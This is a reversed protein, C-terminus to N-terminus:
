ACQIIDAHWRTFPAAPIVHPAVELARILKWAPGLPLADQNIVHAGADSTHKVQTGAISAQKGQQGALARTQAPDTEIDRLHHEIGRSGPKGALIADLQNLV